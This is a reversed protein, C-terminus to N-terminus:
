PSLNPLLMNSPPISEMLIYVRQGATSHRVYWIRRLCTSDPRDAVQRGLVVVELTFSRLSHKITQCTQNQKVEDLPHSVVPTLETRAPRILCLWFEVPVAHLDRPKAAGVNEYGVFCHDVTCGRQDKVVNASM